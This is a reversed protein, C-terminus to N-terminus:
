IIFFHDFKLALNKKITAFEVAKKKGSGDEDYILIGKKKNYVIYDDKDTAKTGIKFFDSKLKGTKKLKKFIANELQIKDNKVEFDVIQDRNVGKVPKTNFVFFDKGAGGTLIDNGDGGNITDNGADGFLFDIGFGGDLKDNGDGGKVNDDGDAGKLDDNGGAGDIVDNGAMGDIVNAAGNGTLTNNFANGTLSIAAAGTATMNEIGDALIYSISTLIKDADGGSDVVVDGADDVTYTDNGLGGNMRDAGAGGDIVNDAANGTISNNSANGTLSIAGTGESILNEIDAAITYSISAYVTDTGNGGAESVTDGANDVYYTENGTGGSMQDAGSGGHLRDNGSGGSLVDNGERGNLDDNGASGGNLTDNFETGVYQDNNASGPMNIGQFRADIVRGRIGADDGGRGPIDEDWAAILRGDLLEIVKPTGRTGDRSFESVLTDDRRAYSNDFVAVRVNPISTGDTDLYTIAFGGGRLATVGPMGQDGADSKSVIFADKYVSMDANLIKAKINDGTGDSSVETWAVLIRGDSLLVADPATGEKVSTAITYETGDSTIGGTATSISAKLSVIGDPGVDDSYITLFRDGSLGILNYAEQDSDSPLNALGSHLRNGSSDLVYAFVGADNTGEAEKGNITVVFGGESLGEVIPKSLSGPSTSVIEFDDTGGEDAGNRDFPTGDAKFIRARLSYEMVGLENLSQHEWTYVLKGDKLVTVTPASNIGETTDIRIPEGEPVAGSYFRQAYIEVSRTGLENIVEHQWVAIFKGDALAQLQVGNQANETMEENILFEDWKVAPISM